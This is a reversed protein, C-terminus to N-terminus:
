NPRARQYPRAFRCHRPSVVPDGADVVDVFESPISAPVDDIAFPPLGDM